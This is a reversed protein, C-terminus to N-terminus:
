FTTDYSCSKKPLEDKFNKSIEENFELKYEDNLEDCFDILHNSVTRISYINGTLLRISNNNQNKSIDNLIKCSLDTNKSLETITNVVQKCRRNCNEQYM